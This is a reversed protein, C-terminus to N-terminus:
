DGGREGEVDHEVVRGSSPHPRGQAPPPVSREARAHRPPVALRLVDAATGGGFAPEMPQGTAAEVARIPKDTGRLASAGLLMEGTITM